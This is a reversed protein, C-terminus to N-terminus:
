VGARGEESFEDRHSSLAILNRSPYKVQDQIINQMHATRKM